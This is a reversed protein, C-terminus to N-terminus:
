RNLKKRSAVFYGTATTLATAAVVGTVVDAPGTTPMKEPTPDVPTVPTECAKIDINVDTEDSETQYGGNAEVKARQIVDADGCECVDSNVTAEFYIWAGGGAAYNGINIGSESTINDSVIVGDNGQNYVQTTGPVLTQGSPLTERILVDKQIATGTNKYHIRYEVTDGCNAATSEAWTDSGKVRVEQTIDLDATQEFQAKVRLTVYGSYEICGPIKGDMTDYGLLAGTSSLLEKGLTFKRLEGNKTNYYEATGDVYALNFKEGNKSKFTASDWVKQPNANSSYIKGSVTLESASTTPLIVYATTDEAVLGSGSYATNHVYMRLIYEKGDEVTIEDKWSNDAYNGTYLSTSFFNFENGVEKNNDVISNFTVYTAPTEMTFEARAPGYAFTPVSLFAVAAASALLAGSKLSKNM